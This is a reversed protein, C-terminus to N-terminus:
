VLIGPDIDRIKEIDTQMSGNKELNAQTSSEAWRSVCFFASCSCLAHPGVGLPSWPLGVCLCPPRLPSASSLVLGLVSLHPKLVLARVRERAASVRFRAIKRKALVAASQRSM